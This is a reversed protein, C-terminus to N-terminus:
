TLYKKTLRWSIYLIVSLWTICLIHKKKWLKLLKIGCHKFFFCTSLPFTHRLLVVWRMVPLSLSYSLPVPSVGKDSLPDRVKCSHSALFWSKFMCANPPANLMWVVSNVLMKKTIPKMIVALYFVVCSTCCERCSSCNREPDSINM